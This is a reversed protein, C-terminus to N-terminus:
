DNNNILTKIIKQAHVIDIKIQAQLDSLNDFKKIARLKNFITIQCKQGYLHRSFNLLHVELSLRNNFTKKPGFHLIGWLNENKYVSKCVYVGYKLKLRYPWFNITPFGIKEGINSGYIVTRFFTLLPL